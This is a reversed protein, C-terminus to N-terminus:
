KKEKKAVKKKRPHDEEWKELAKTFWATGDDNWEFKKKIYEITDYEIDTIRDGDVAEQFILKASQKGIKGSKTEAADLMGKDYKKGDIQKYYSDKKEKSKRPPQKKTCGPCFWVDPVKDATVSVCPGHYWNYCGALQACCEIQFGEASQNCSCILEVEKDKDKDKDKEKEKEKEKKAAAAAAARPSSPPTKRPSTPPTKAKKASWSSISKRIWQDADKEFKYNERIYKMTAKEITTYVDGDIVEKFLKKCDDVTLKDKTETAEDVVDLMGKDYKQGKIQKYYPKKKESAPESRKRKSAM